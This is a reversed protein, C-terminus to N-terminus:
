PIWVWNQSSNAAIPETEEPEIHDPIGNSDGDECNDCHWTRINFLVEDRLNYSCINCILVM